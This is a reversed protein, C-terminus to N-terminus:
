RGPMGRFEALRFLVALKIRKQQYDRLTANFGKGPPIHDVLGPNKLKEVVSALWEGSSVSLDAAIGPDNIAQEPNLQLRMADRLSLGNQGIERANDYAALVQQLKEHDVPVWKNKIFALGESTELLQRAEDESIEIDGLFIRPNFDVIADLGVFSPKADGLSLGLKPGASRRKWWDPIRCLIGSEEYFPIEKLFDYAESSTWALPHFLEGSDILERILGSKEASKYVTSLLELLKGDDGDYESIANKLPLHNPKGNRGMGTSYTAMFAFPHAGNKNEVLHFFVRGALHVDPNLASFFSAVSNEHKRILASFVQGLQAWLDALMDADIYEAGAIMPASEVLHNLEDEVIEIAVHHRLTELEPVRSLKQIFLESFKIFYNVAPSLESNQKFFGLYFLWSGADRLYAQFIENEIEETKESIAELSEM